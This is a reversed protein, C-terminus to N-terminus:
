GIQSRLDEKSMDLINKQDILIQGSLPDYFRLLLNIITSKGSGSPGVLAVTEGAQINLDFDQCVFIDPRTPYAFNVGKVMINGSFPAVLTNNSKTQNSAVSQANSVSEDKITNLVEKIAVRATSFAILPPAIQGLAEAAMTMCFFVTIVTGGTICKGNCNGDLDSSVLEAGYWFGLAYILFYVGFMMGNGLGVNLGKLLGVNMAQIIKKRYQTIFHPQLNLATVTRIGSFSISAIGGAEAYQGLTQNQAATISNIMYTGAAGLLPFSVLLVAAIKWQFYFAVALSATVQTIYQVVDGAKRSM